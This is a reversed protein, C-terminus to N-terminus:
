LSALRDLKELESLKELLPQQPAPTNMVFRLSPSRGYGALFEKATMIRKGAPQLKEIVLGGQGTMVVMERAASASREPPDDAMSHLCEALRPGWLIQGPEGAAPFLPLAYGRSISTRLQKDQHILLQGFTGPWPQLGRVQREILRAPYRFDLEGDPKKLRPAVTALSPDQPQGLGTIRDILNCKEIAEMAELTAVVGLESLRPELEDATEGPLIETAVQALVPGADLKATLHIVCAGTQRDGRLLCWQVPAAGRHRPLLSGHLNIGGLRAAAIAEPSLIQGYDCVVLLDAAQEHLLQLSDASNISEPAVLPLGAEAAWAAVPSPPSLLRPSPRTIVLLVQDNRQRHIARFSPVAFPGTGMLIIRM